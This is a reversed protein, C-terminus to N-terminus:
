VANCDHQWKLRPYCSSVKRRHGQGQGIVKRYSSSRFGRFSVQM